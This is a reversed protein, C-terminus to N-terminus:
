IMFRGMNAQQILVMRSSDLHSLRLDRIPDRTGWGAIRGCKSFENHIFVNLRFICLVSLSGVIPLYAIGVEHVEKKRKEM